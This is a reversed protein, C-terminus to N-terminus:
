TSIVTPCPAIPCTTLQSHQKSLTPPMHSAKRGAPLGASSLSALSNGRIKVIAHTQMLSDRRVADLHSADGVAPCIESLAASQVGLPREFFVVTRCFLRALHLYREDWRNVCAYHPNHGSNNHIDISGVPQHVRIADVVDRMLRAEPTLDDLTGPWSRNYDHQSPLTRVLTDPRRSTASSCCFGALCIGMTGISSLSFRPGVRARTATCFVSVFLPSAHKGPIDFLTPGPLHRWLERSPAHLLAQPFGHVCNLRLTDARDLDM